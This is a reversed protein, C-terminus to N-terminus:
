PIAAAAALALTKGILATSVSQVDNDLENIAAQVTSASITGAPTNTVISATLETLPLTAKITDAM